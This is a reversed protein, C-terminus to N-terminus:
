LNCQNNFFTVFQVNNYTSCVLTYQLTMDLKLIVQHEIFRAFLELRLIYM